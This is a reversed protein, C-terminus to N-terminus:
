PELLTEEAEMVMEAEETSNYTEEAEMEKVVM